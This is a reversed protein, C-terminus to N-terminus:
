DGGCRQDITEKEQTTHPWERMANIAHAGERKAGTSKGLLGEANGFRYSVGEGTRIEGPNHKRIWKEGARGNASGHEGNQKVDERVPGWKGTQKSPAENRRGPQWTAKRRKDVSCIIKAGTNM